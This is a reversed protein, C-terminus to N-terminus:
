GSEPDSNGRGPARPRLFPGVQLVCCVRGGFFCNRVDNLLLGSSLPPGVGVGPSPYSQSNKKLTVSQDKAPSGGGRPLPHSAIKGLPKGGSHNEDHKRYIENVKNKTKKDLSMSVPVASFAMMVVRLATTLVYAECASPKPNSVRRSRIKSSPM